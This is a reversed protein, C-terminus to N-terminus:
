APRRDRRQRGKRTAAGGGRVEGVGGRGSPSSPSFFFSAQDKRGERGRPSLPRPLSPRRRPLGSVSPLPPIPSEVRGGGAAVMGMRVRDDPLDVASEGPYPPHHQPSEGALSESRLHAT